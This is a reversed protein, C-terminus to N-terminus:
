ANKIRLLINPKVSCGASNCVNAIWASFKFKKGVTLYNLTNTYAVQGPNAGNILLMAGGGGTSYTTHDKNENVWDVFGGLRPNSVVAYQGDAASRVGDQWAWTYGPVTSSPVRDGDGANLAQPGTYGATLGTMAPNIGVTGFTENNVNVFNCGPAEVSDFIGDNDDDV